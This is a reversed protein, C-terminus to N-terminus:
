EAKTKEEPLSGSLDVGVTKGVEVVRDRVLNIRIQLAEMIVNIVMAVLALGFLQYAFSMLFYENDSPLIDGFGVTSISIFIFYFGDLYSWDEWVQYMLAGLLMYLVSVGVAVGVPLNFEEDVAYDNEDGAKCLKLMRRPYSYAAKLLLTLLKGLEALVILCLPIGVAAYVM